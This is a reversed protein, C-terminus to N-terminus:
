KRRPKAVAARKPKRLATSSQRNFRANLFIWDKPACLRDAPSTGPRSVVVVPVSKAVERWNRWKRFNALNDAGMVLFFEVGPYLRKLARLTQYTFACGLRQEIDTVEMKRGHAQGRASAVRQEFPSSKPKLPNQPSVLWWVKDLGLRKLATEAVHAHGEHAPDFSGGFLGVKMGPFALPLDRMM